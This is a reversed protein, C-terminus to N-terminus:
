RLVYFVNQMFYGDWIEWVLLVAMVAIIKIHVAYEMGVVSPLQFIYVSLIGFLM